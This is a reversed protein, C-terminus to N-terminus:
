KSDKNESEENWVVDELLQWPQVELAQALRCLNLVAINREGREVGGVYTRDLGAKLALQEQSLSSAKRRSRVNNGIQILIPNSIQM